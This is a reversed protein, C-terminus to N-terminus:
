GAQLGGEGVAQGGHADLRHTLARLPEWLWHARASDAFKVTTVFGVAPNSRRELVQGAPIRQSTVQNEAM